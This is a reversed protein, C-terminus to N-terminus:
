QDVEFSQGAVNSLDRVVADPGFSGYGRRIKGKASLSALVARAETVNVCAAKLDPLKYVPLRGERVLSHLKYVSVKETAPLSEAFKALTAYKPSTSASAGSPPTSPPTTDDASM